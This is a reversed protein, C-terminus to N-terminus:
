SYHIRPDVWAYALDALLNGVLTALTAILLTKALGPVGEVVAHGSCLIALMAQDVVEDQGVIVKGIEARLTKYRQQLDQVAEVDSAYTKM